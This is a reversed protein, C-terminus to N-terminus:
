TQSQNDPQLSEAHSDALNETNAPKQRWSIEIEELTRGKTEPMVKWIFLLQPLLLVAFLFFIGSVGLRSRLVPFLQNYVIDTTWVALTAIAMARGRIKTPFIESMVVWKIPGMSFAFCAVFSCLLTVVMLGTTLGSLFLVGVGALSCIAGATGVFLLPRRGAIDMLWIAVLTFTVNVFGISTFGGLAQGLSLGSRALIDPGYYFVVTIGSLESAIALFLAVFLAKRLGPQFLSALSSSASAITREIEDLERDASAEGGIRALVIRAEERRNSKILWRPAEPVVLCLGTFLVSPILEMGFMGRWTQNVVLWQYLSSGHGVIARSALHQLGANSFLALCIGITIAFQFLTVMRGRLHTPSIEAIYLPSVMSALGVGLGGVFRSWILVNLNLALACGISCIIFLSGSVILVLKRGFRDALSGAVIAGLACGTLASSVLWGEMASGLMFQKKLETLTGSIVATDFGFLVGGLAAVTCVFIMYSLSGGPRTEVIRRSLLQSVPTKENSANL